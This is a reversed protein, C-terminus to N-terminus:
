LPPIMLTQNHSPVWHLPVWLVTLLILSVKTLSMLNASHGKEEFLLLTCSRCHIPSSLHHSMPVSFSLVMVRMHYQCPLIMKMRNLVFTYVHFKFVHLHHWNSAVAVPFPHWHLLLVQPPGLNQLPCWLPSNLQSAQVKLLTTRKHFYWESRKQKKTLVALELELQCRDAKPISM